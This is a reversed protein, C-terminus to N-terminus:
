ITQLVKKPVPCIFVNYEEKTPTRLANANM